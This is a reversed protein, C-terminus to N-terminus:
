KDQKRVAKIAQDLVELFREQKMVYRAIWWIDGAEMGGCTKYWDDSEDQHRCIMYSQDGGTLSTNSCAFSWADPDAANSYCRSTQVPSITGGYPMMELRGDDGDGGDCDYYCNGVVKNAGAALYTHGGMRALNEFGRYCMRDPQIEVVAGRGEEMFMAQTLGAGHMGVLVDSDRSVQVQERLTLAAFDVLHVDAEGAFRARAADLLFTDLGMLQRSSRRHILTVNLRPALLAAPRRRSIGLLGFVRQVFVRLMENDECDLKIFDAWLNNAAGALPLIVNDIPVAHASTIWEDVRLPKKTSFLGFLDFLPGDPHEDLIIIQTNAIDEASFLAAGSASTPDPTMRLVDLTIMIAMIENMNHFINGDVERKLLLVFNRGTSPQRAESSHHPPLPGPERSIRLDLWQKLLYKPGTLYQYSNLKALPIIGSVAQEDTLQRSDCDLAFKRWRTDFIIGHQAICFSDNSGALSAGFISGASPTHFCTLRSQSAKSCYQGRHERFGELLAATYRAKCFGSLPALIWSPTALNYESPLAPPEQVAPSNLDAAPGTEPAPQGSAAISSESPIAPTDPWRVTAPEAFFLTRFGFLILFLVLVAFAFLPTGARGTACPWAM